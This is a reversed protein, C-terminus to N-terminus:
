GPQSLMQLLLCMELSETNSCSQWLVPPNMRRPTGINRMCIPTSPVSDM